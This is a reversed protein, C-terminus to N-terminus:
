SRMGKLVGEIVQTLIGSSIIRSWFGTNGAKLLRRLRSKIFQLRRNESVEISQRCATLLVAFFESLREKAEANDHFQTLMDRVSLALVIDSANPEASLVVFPMGDLPLGLAHVISYVGRADVQWSHLAHLLTLDSGTELISERPPEISSDPSTPVQDNSDLNWAILTLSTYEGAMDDLQPVHAQVYDFLLGDARNNDGCLILAFVTPDYQAAHLRWVLSLRTLTSPEFPM